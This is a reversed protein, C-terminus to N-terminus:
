KFQSPPILTSRSTPIFVQSVSDIQLCATSINKKQLYFSEMYKLKLLSHSHFNMEECGACLNYCACVCCKYRVGYIVQSQCINCSVLHISKSHKQLEERILKRIDEVISDDKIDGSFKVESSKSETGLVADVAKDSYENGSIKNFKENKPIQCFKSSPPSFDSADLGIDILNVKIQSSKEELAIQTTQSPREISSVGCSKDNSDFASTGKNCLIM